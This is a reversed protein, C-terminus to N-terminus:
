SLLGKVLDYYKDIENNVSSQQGADMDPQEILTSTSLARDGEGQGNSSASAVQVLRKFRAETETKERLLTEILERQAQLSSHDSTRYLEM